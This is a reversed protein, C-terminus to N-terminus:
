VSGYYGTCLEIVGAATDNPSYVILPDDNGSRQYVTGGVTSRYGSVAIGALDNTLTLLTNATTGIQIHESESVAGMIWVPAGANVAATLATALTVVRTATNVSSVVYVGFTRDAHMIVLHDNAALIDGRFALSSLTVTTAGSNAAAATTTRELAKLVTLTHATGAARYSLGTIRTRAGRMAPPILLRLPTGASATLRGLSFSGKFVLGAPM